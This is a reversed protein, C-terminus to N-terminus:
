DNKLTSKLFINLIRVRSQDIEDLTPKRVGRKAGSKAIRELRKSCVVAYHSLKFQFLFKYHKM